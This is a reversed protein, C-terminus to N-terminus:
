VTMDEHMKALFSQCQKLLATAEAAKSKYEELSLAESQELQENTLRGGHRKQREEENSFYCMRCRYNCALLTDIFVGIYRRHTVHMLWLAALKMRNGGLQSFRRLLSYINM